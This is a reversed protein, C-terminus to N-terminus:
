KEHVGDDCAMVDCVPRLIYAIGHLTHGQPHVHPCVEADLVTCMCGAICRMRLGVPYACVRLAPVTTSSNLNKVWFQLASAGSFPQSGSRQGERM